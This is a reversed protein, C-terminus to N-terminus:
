KLGVEAMCKLIYESRATETFHADMHQVGNLYIEHLREHDDLLTRLDSCEAKSINGDHDGIDWCHVGHVWPHEMRRDNRQRLMPAISMLQYPRDSGHGGGCSELFMKASRHRHMWHAHALRKLPFQWDVKFRGDQLLGCVVHCRQQSSMGIFCVDNLRSGLEDKSALPFDCGPYRAPEIPRVWDPYTRSAQMGRMFYLKTHSRAKFIFVPWEQKSMIEDNILRSPNWGFWEDSPYDFFDFVVVPLRRELVSNLITWDYPKFHCQLKFFVVDAVAPDKTSGHGNARLTAEFTGFIDLEHDILAKAFLINM